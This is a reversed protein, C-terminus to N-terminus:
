IHILSLAVISVVISLQVKNSVVIGALNIFFASCLVAFGIVFVEITSLGLTYGVYSSAVLAVAPAGTMEWLLFLWSIATSSSPGFASKAFAYVGGTEPRSSSLRSFTLAFPVSALSLIVWAILSSPGAIRATIGPLVLIGSGLVSSTYLAIANRLKITKVVENEKLPM